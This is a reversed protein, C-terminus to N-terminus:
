SSKNEVKSYKKEANDHPNNKSQYMKKYSNLRINNNNTVNGVQM